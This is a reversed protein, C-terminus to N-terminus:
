LDFFETLRRMRGKFGLLRSKAYIEDKNELVLLKDIVNKVELTTSARALPLKELAKRTTERIHWNGVPAYYSPLIERIIVTDARKGRKYLAELVALKSASYGGDEMTKRGLPDEYLYYIIPKPSTKTWVTRPHWVEIWELSGEGPLLVVIFRNGLYEHFYVEVQDISPKDRLARQLHRSLIEDVATITWRTPVVRRNRYRGLFGLSFARQISYVDVGSLYAEWVADSAYADDWVLRELKRNMVPNEQVLIKKAPASPGIPKTIGTFRLRPVPIKELLAETSVPKESLAAIGLESSYLSYPDNAKVRVRAGLLSSRLRLIRALSYRARSWGLPDDYVRAQEGTVSPPIYFYVNLSPYGHEGVLLGPPTSGEVEPGRIRLVTRAQSQFMELIPCRPLGCLKKYGKCRACLEPPIRPM